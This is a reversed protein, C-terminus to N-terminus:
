TNMQCFGDTMNKMSLMIWQLARALDCMITFAKQVLFSAGSSVLVESVVDDEGDGPRGRCFRMLVSAIFSGWKDMEGAPTM